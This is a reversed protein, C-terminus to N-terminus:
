SEQTEAQVSNVTTVQSKREACYNTKQNQTYSNGVFKSNQLFSRAPHSDNKSSSKENGSVKWIMSMTQSLLCVRTDYSGAMGGYVHEIRRSPREAQAQNFAAAGTAPTASPFAPALGNRRASNTKM